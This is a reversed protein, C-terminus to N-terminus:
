IGIYRYLFVHDMNSVFEVVAYIGLAYPGSGVWEPQMLNWSQHRDDMFMVYLTLM